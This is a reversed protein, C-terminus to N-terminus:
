CCSYSSDMLYNVQTFLRLSAFRAESGTCLISLSPKWVMLSPKNTSFLPRGRPVLPTYINTNRSIFTLQCMLVHKGERIHLPDQSCVSCCVIACWLCESSLHQFFCTFIDFWHYFVNKTKANSHGWSKWGSNYGADATEKKFISAVLCFNDNHLSRSLCQEKNEVKAGMCKTRLVAAFPPVDKKWLFSVSKELEPYGAHRSEWEEPKRNWKQLTINHISNIQISKIFFMSNFVYYISCLFSFITILIFLSYKNKIFSEEKASICLIKENLM